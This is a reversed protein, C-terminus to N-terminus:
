FCFDMSYIMGRRFRAGPVQTALPSPSRFSPKPAHYCSAIIPVIMAKHGFRSHAGAGNHPISRSLDREILIPLLAVQLRAQFSASIKKSWHAM